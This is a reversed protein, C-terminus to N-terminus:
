KQATEIILPRVLVRRGAARAARLAENLATLYAEQSEV